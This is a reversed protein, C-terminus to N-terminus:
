DDISKVPKYGEDDDQDNACVVKKTDPDIVLTRFKAELEIDRWEERTFLKKM